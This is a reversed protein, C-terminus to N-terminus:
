EHLDLKPLNGLNSYGNGYKQYIGMVTIEFASLVDGRQPLCVSCGRKVSSPWFVGVVSWPCFVVAHTHNFNIKRGRRRCGLM